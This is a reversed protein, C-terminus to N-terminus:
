LSEQTIVKYGILHIVETSGMRFPEEESFVFGLKRYWDLTSLNEKMVGLYVRDYMKSGAIEYGSLLLKKGIGLGQYQPLIYLSSVFFRNLKKDDYLKMWGAPTSDVEAVIGYVDPNNFLELLKKNSYYKDFHYRIDKLPIFTYTALWTKLLIEQVSPFDEKTWHRLTIEHKSTM